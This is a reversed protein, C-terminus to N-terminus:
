NSLDAGVAQLFQMMFRVGKQQQSGVASPVRTLQQTLQKCSYLRSSFDFHRQAPAATLSRNVEGRWFRAM